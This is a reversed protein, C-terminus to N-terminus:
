NKGDFGQMCKRSTGYKGGMADKKVQDDGPYCRTVTCIVVVCLPQAGLCPESGVSSM